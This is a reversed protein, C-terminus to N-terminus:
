RLSLLEATQMCIYLPGPSQECYFIGQALQQSLIAAPYSHSKCLTFLLMTVVLFLFHKFRSAVVEAVGLFTSTM